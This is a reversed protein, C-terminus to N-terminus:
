LSGSFVRVQENWGEDLYYKLYHFIAPSVLLLSNFRDLVGGHGPFAAGMDKIGVDRKVSSLLLDGIQGMLSITIGMFIVHRWEALVTDYFVIRALGAALITTLALAGAAGGITKNPSTHPALKRRGFSKGCIYAFVDNMQVCFLLWIMMPRFRLHNGLFGFHALCMGFLMFGLVSLGVRQIYGSPRDALIAVAAILGVILPALSTFLGYWNDLSSLAVGVIGLVAMSSMLRERFLGTARAYERYCLLSLVGVAMIAYPAGLLVPGIMLPALILWSFYRTWLEKVLPPGVSGSKGLAVIFLPTLGLMAGITIVSYLVFADDIVGHVEFFGRRSPIM